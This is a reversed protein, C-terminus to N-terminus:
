SVLSAHFASVTITKISLLFRPETITLCFQFLTKLEVKHIHTTTKNIYGLKLELYSSM